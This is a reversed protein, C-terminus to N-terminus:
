GPDPNRINTAGSGPDPDAISSRLGMKLSSEFTFSEEYVRSHDQFSNRFGGMVHVDISLCIKRQDLLFRGISFITWHYLFSYLGSLFETAARPVFKQILLHKLLLLSFRKRIKEEVLRCFFKVVM